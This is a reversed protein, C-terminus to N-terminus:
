PNHHQEDNAEHIITILAKLAAPIHRRGVYGLSVGPLTAAYYCTDM